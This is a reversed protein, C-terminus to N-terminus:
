SSRRRYEKCHCPQRGGSQNCRFKEAQIARWALIQCAVTFSENGGRDKQPRRKQAYSRAVGCTFCGSQSGHRGRSEQSRAQSNTFFGTCCCAFFIRRNRRTVGDNSSEQAHSTKGTSRRAVRGPNAIASACCLRQCTRNCFRFYLIKQDYLRANVFRWIVTLANGLAASKRYPFVTFVATGEFGVVGPFRM